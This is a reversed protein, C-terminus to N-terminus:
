AWLTYACPILGLQLIQWLSNCGPDRLRWMTLCCPGFELDLSWGLEWLHLIHSSFIGRRSSSFWLLSRCKSKGKQLYFSSLTAQSIQPLTIFGFDSSPCLLFPCLEWSSRMLWRIEQWRQPRLNKGHEIFFCRTHICESSSVRLFSMAFQSYQPSLILGQLRRLWTLLKWKCLSRSNSSFFDMVSPVM